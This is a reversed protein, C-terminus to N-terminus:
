KKQDAPLEQIDLAFIKEAKYFAPEVNYHIAPALDAVIRLRRSAPDLNTRIQRILKGDVKILTLGKRISRVNKIDIVVRPKEGEIASIEPTTEQNLDIFIKEHGGSEFKVSINKVSLASEPRSAPKKDQRPPKQSGSLPSPPKQDKIEPAPKATEITTQEKDAKVPEAAAESAPAAVLRAAYVYGKAKSKLRKTEDPDFVAYWGNEHFDVRVCEGAKLQGKIKSELSPAVRVNTQEPVFMLKGWERGEVDVPSALLLGLCIVLGFRQIIKFLHTM